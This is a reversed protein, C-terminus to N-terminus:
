EVIPPHWEKVLVLNRAPTHEGVPARVVATVRLAVLILPVQGHLVDIVTARLGLARLGKAEYLTEVFGQKILEVSDRKALLGISVEVFQLCIQIFPALAVILLSWMLAAPAFALVGICVKM